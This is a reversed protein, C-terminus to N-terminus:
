CNTSPSVAFIDQFTSPSVAFFIDQFRQPFRQLSYLVAALLPMPIQAWVSIIWEWISFMHPFLLFFFIDQFRHSDKCLILLLWCALANSDPGVSFHNMGLYFVHPTLWTYTYTYAGTPYVTLHPFCSLLKKDIITSTTVNLRGKSMSIDHLVFNFMMTQNERLKNWVTWQHVHYNEHLSFM